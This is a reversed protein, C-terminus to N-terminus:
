SDDDSVVVGCLTTRIYGSGLSRVVHVYHLTGNAEIVQAVKM